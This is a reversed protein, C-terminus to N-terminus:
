GRQGRIGWSKTEECEEHEHPARLFGPRVPLWEAIALSDTVAGTGQPAAIRDAERVGGEVIAEASVVSGRGVKNM